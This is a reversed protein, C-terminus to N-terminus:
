LLDNKNKNVFRQNLVSDSDISQENEQNCVMIPSEYWGNVVIREIIEEDNEENSEKVKDYLETVDQGNEQSKRMEVDLNACYAEDTTSVTRFDVSGSEEEFFKGGEENIVVDNKPKTIKKFLSPKSKFQFSYVDYQGIIYDYVCFRPIPFPTGSFRPGTTAMVSKDYEGHIGFLNQYKQVTTVAVKEIRSGVIVAYSHTHKLECLRCKNVTPFHTNVLTLPNKDPNSAFLKACANVEKPGLFERVVFIPPKKKTGNNEIYNKCLYVSQCLDGMVCPREGWKAIAERLFSEVIYARPIAVISEVLEEETPHLNSRSSGKYTENFYDETVKSWYGVLSDVYDPKGGKVSSVLPIKDQIQEKIKQSIISSNTNNNSPNVHRFTRVNGSKSNIASIDDVVLTKKKNINKPTLDLDLLNAATEQSKDTLPESSNLTVLKTHSISNDPIEDLSLSSSNSNPNLIKLMSQEFNQGQNQNIYTKLPKIVKKLLDENTENTLPKSRNKDILIKKRPKDDDEVRRKM